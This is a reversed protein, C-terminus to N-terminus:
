STLLRQRLVPFTGLSIPPQPLLNRVFLGVNDRQRRSSLGFLFDNAMGNVSNWEVSDREM